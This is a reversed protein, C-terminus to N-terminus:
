QTYQQPIMQTTLILTKWRIKYLLLEKISTVINTKQCKSEELTSRIAVWELTRAQLIGPIPSGPPSGDIPDCRTLFSQLSKAAAPQDKEREFGRNPLKSEKKSVYRTYCRTPHVLNQPINKIVLNELQIFSTRNGVGTKITRRSHQSCLPISLVTNLIFVDDATCPRLETKLKKM